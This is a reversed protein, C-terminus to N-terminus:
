KKFLVKLLRFVKEKESDDRGVMLREIKHMYGADMYPCLNNSVAECVPMLLAQSIRYVVYASCKKEGREVEGWYKSSVGAKAAAQEQTLGRLRRARRINIGIAKTIQSGQDEDDLMLNYHRM